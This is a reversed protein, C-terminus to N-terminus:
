IKWEEQRECKRILSKEVRQPDRDRTQVIGRYLQHSNLMLRLFLCVEEAAGIFLNRGSLDDDHILVILVDDHEIFGFRRGGTHAARSSIINKNAIRKNNRNDNLGCM